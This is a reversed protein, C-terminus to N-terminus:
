FVKKDFGLYKLIPKAILLAGVPGPHVRDWTLSASYRQTLYEDFEKQVDVVAVGYKKALDSTNYDAFYLVGDKVTLNDHLLKTKQCNM